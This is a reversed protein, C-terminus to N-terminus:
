ESEENESASKADGTSRSYTGTQFNLAVPKDKKTETNRLRAPQTDSNRGVTDTM